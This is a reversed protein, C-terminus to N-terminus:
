GRPASARAVPAEAAPGRLDARLRERAQGPSPAATIPVEWRCFGTFASTPSIRAPRRSSSRRARRSRPPARCRRRWPRRPRPRRRAPPAGRAAGRGVALEGLLEGRDGGARREERVREDDGGVGAVGGVGGRMSGAAAPRRRRRARTPACRSRSRRSPARSAAPPPAPPAPPSRRSRPRRRGAPRHRRLGVGVVEGRLLAEGGVAAQPDRQQARGRLLPDGRQSAESRQIGSNRESCVASSFEGLSWVYLVGATAM